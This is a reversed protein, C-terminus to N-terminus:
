EHAQILYNSVINIIEQGFRTAKSEGLGHINLLEESTVPVEEAISQIVSNQLVMFKKWKLRRAERDRFNKLLRILDKKTLIEQSIKGSFDGANKVATRDSKNKVKKKAATKNISDLASIKPYKAGATRIKKEKIWLEILSNLSPAPIYKLSGSHEFSDPNFKKRTKVKEGRLIKVIGSKGFAGNAERITNLIIEKESDNFEYSAKEKSILIEKKRASIKDLVDSSMGLCNDCVGCKQITEGFYGCLIKQRCEGSLIYNEMLGLLETSHERDNKSKMSLFRHTNLDSKKYFLICEANKGDRGARGAEQYYSEVSSPLNYHIVLRVDPEDMGMGFANTAVLINKSGQSFYHHANIRASGTRGAHYHVANLKNDKLLKCIEDVKKRTSCYIIIKGDKHSKHKSKNLIGLLTENKIRDTETFKVSFILNKRLFSKQIVLPNQLNLNKTIDDLVTKTATATLALIPIDYKLKTKLKSLKRYEPRFDHGWKSICHAEDVAIYNVKIKELLTFFEGGLSKEPSLFLIKIKGTVARSFATRQELEDMSSNATMAPIGTSNLYACQENMLAILPSIVLAIGEKFLLSPFQYILSKGAGTPM